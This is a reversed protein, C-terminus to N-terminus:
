KFLRIGEKLAWDFHCRRWLAKESREKSWVGDKEHWQGSSITIDSCTRDRRGSPLDWARLPLFCTTGCIGNPAGAMGPGIVSKQIIYKYEKARIYSDIGYM